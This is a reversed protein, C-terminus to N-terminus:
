PVSLRNITLLGGAILLNNHNSIFLNSRMNWMAEKTRCVVFDIKFGVQQSKAKHNLAQHRNWKYVIRLIEM